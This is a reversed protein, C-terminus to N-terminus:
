RNSKQANCRKCLMQLNEEVTKGGQSWPTIHDGEMESFEFHEGCIKCIGTQRDYAKKKQSLSFTRLSLWKEDPKLRKSVLYPIIGKKAGVEDDEILEKTSKTLESLSYEDHKHENYLLGWDQKDTIGKIAEPFNEKAWNIVKTVYDKLVDCDEDHQHKAMFETIDSCGEEKAKWRFVQELIDQRLPNGSIYGDAYNLIWCNSKSFLLKASTLWTGSYIGNLVEQNTLPVGAVNIRKFWELKADETGECVKVEIEYDLFERKEDESLNYFGRSNGNMKVTFDGHIYQCISITRQQGDLIDYYGDGLDNWYFLSLPLGDMVTEVVAQRQKENYVFERQYIPRITLHENLGFVGREGDDHYGEALDRIKVMKTTTKMKIRSM